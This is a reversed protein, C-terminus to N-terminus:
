CNSSSSLYLCIEQNSPENTLLFLISIVLSENVSVLDSRALMWWHCHFQERTTDVGPLASSVREEHLFEDFTLLATGCVMAKWASGLPYGADERFWNAQDTFHLISLPLTRTLSVCSLSQFGLVVIMVCIQVKFVLLRASWSYTSQDISLRYAWSFISSNVVYYNYVNYVRTLTAMKLDQSVM